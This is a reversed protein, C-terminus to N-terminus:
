ITRWIKTAMITMDDKPRNSSVFKAINIIEETIRKPNQSNIGAIVRKMWEVSNEESRNCDLVGDSMMILIDGDELYEEYINSDVDALIGIPLSKSSIVDVRDKRKIFTSPSGNKIIQLRGTYLDIFGLDLTTFIEDNSKTRLFSNITRIIMTKDMNIEMLKELLEIAVSSERNAKKGIGMGDCIATFNINGMEGFSYSDGSVKNESNALSTVDTLTTFRNEKKFKIIKSSVKNGIIYDTSINFGLAVSIIDRIKEIESTDNIPNQMEILIELNDEPLQIVSLDAISIRNDKIENTLLLRLDESFLPNTYIEETINEVVSGFSHLQDVLLKRQENLKKKWIQNNKVPILHEKISDLLQEGNDCSDKVRSILDDENENGLEIVGILNLLRFYSTYYNNEWCKEFDMCNSCTKNSIEDVLNYIDTTSYAEDEEIAKNLIKSLDVFFDSMSKLKKVIFEEKKKKYEREVNTTYDFIRSLDIKILKALALFIISGIFLERYDLFSTGLKNIYFSVIGNGLIFGLLSGAKGLDRFLGSLLGGVSLISVIFPMEPSGLYTILGLVCGSVSGLLVGQKYGLYVIMVICIINKLSLGFFWISDLGSLVLSLTIFTCVMKENSLGKNKIDEIPMSFSFIYTMTFVLIGEFLLVFLDYMYFERFLLTSSLRTILFVLSSILSARLLTSEEAENVKIFSIYILIIALQYDLGKIGSYSISGLIVSLLVYLNNGKILLYAGLFGIGFPALRGSIVVRSILFGFLLLLVEEKGINLDIKRKSNISEVKIM